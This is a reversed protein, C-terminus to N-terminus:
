PAAVPAVQQRQQRRERRILVFILTFLGAITLAGGIAMVTPGIQNYKGTSPDYSYCSLLFRDALTGVTGESAEVIALRLTDADWRFDNLYRTIKGEPSLFILSAKHDFDQRTQNWRFGYGVSETLRRINKEDHSTLFHWGSKAGPRDYVSFTSKKKYAALENKERHDFSVSLITMEKGPTLDIGELGAVLSNLVPGCLSPCSFFQLNLVIPRGPILYDTLKVEKGTEDRFVVDKAVYAGLRQDILTAEDEVIIGGGIGQANALTTCTLTAAMTCGLLGITLQILSLSRM